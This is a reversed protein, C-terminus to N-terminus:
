LPVVFVPVCKPCRHVVAPVESPLTVNVDSVALPQCCAFKLVGIAM